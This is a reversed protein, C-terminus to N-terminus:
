NLFGERIQLREEDGPQQLRLIDEHQEILKVTAANGKFGGGQHLGCLPSEM